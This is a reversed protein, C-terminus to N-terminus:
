LYLFHWTEITSRYLFLQYKSQNQAQCNTNDLLLLYLKFLSNRQLALIDLCCTLLQKWQIVSGNIMELLEIFVSDILYFM